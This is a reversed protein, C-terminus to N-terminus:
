TIQHSHNVSHTTTCCVIYPCKETSDASLSFPLPERREVETQFKDKRREVETQFKDMVAVTLNCNLKTYDKDELILELSFNFSSFM